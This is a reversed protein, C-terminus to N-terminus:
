KSRYEYIGPLNRYRGDLDLGYGIVFRNPISFGIWDAEISVLRKTKKSLLIVSKVSRAGQSLVAKKVEFLTHGTDLIDDVILVERDKLLASSRPIGKIKGSSRTGQYSSLKWTEFLTEPPLFQLLDRLFYLGGNMLGLLVFPRNKYFRLIKQALIRNKNQIQSASILCHFPLSSEM